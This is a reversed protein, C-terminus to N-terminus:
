DGIRDAIFTVKEAIITPYYYETGNKEYRDSQLRGKIGVVTGPRCISACEEAIGKWLTIRFVDTTIQGDENRFMRETELLLDVVTNGRSTTKVEPKEKVRGVLVCTNLM